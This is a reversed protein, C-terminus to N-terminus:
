DFSEGFLWYKPEKDSLELRISQTITEKEEKTLIDIQNNDDLIENLTNEGINLFYQFNDDKILELIVKFITTKQRPDMESFICGDHALFNLANKNLLYLLVDYCFIKVEGVGQSGEKPIHSNINFLYKATPAEETKLSGGKNDYFRKVLGRFIRENENHEEHNKELYSISEQKVIANKVDLDSKDRKFDSLINEYKELDNKETELTKIRDKLSDREELAGSNNLDKLISDRKTSISEKDTQLQILLIKLDRTEISLRKKRNIILNTHFEQAQDLRKIVKDEFFFNAENFLQEIKKIDINTSKSDELSIEKRKLRNDNFFIQNRLENLQSTLDDAKQKLADFNEAIIFDRLQIDLRKIEDKIDNVNSSDLAKKYEEITTKAKELKELKKKIDYSKEVLKLDIKLLSLNAYRQSYDELPRGQQALINSYYSIESSHKRAFCNFTQKFSPKSDVSGLFLKNLEKPYNTQTVKGGNLYFDRQSFNKKIIHEKERHIFTLIFDGYNSLYEKLKKDAKTKFSSGFMYHILSLSMSKGIGNISKKQEKTLQTGVVINLGKEFNITRFKPNSSTLKLLKM